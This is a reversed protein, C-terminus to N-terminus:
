RVSGEAVAIRTPLAGKMDRGNDPQWCNARAELWRPWSSALAVAAPPAQKGTRWIPPPPPPPALPAESFGPKRDAATHYIQEARASSPLSPLLERLPFTSPMERGSLLTTPSPPSHSFAATMTNSSPGLPTSPPMGLSCKRIKGSLKRESPHVTPIAGYNM